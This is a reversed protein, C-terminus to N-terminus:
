DFRTSATYERGDFQYRTEQEFDGQASRRVILDYFGTGQRDVSITAEWSESGLAGSDDVLTPIELVPRFTGAVNSYISTINWMYGQNMFAQEFVIGFLNYGIAIARVTEPPQGYQGFQLVNINASTLDWGGAVKRFEFFSL